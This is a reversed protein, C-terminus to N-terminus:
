KINDYLPFFPLITFSSSSGSTQWTSTSGKWYTPAYTSNSICSTIINKTYYTATKGLSTLVKSIITKQKSEVLYSLQGVTGIYGRLISNKYQLTKSKASIFGTLTKNGYVYYYALIDTARLGDYGRGSTGVPVLQTSLAGTILSPTQTGIIDVYNATTVFTGTTTPSVLDSIKVLYNDGRTILFDPAVHLAVANDGTIGLTDGIWNNKRDYLSNLDIENWITNNNSDVTTYVLYIYSSSYRSTYRYLESPSSYNPYAIFTINSPISYYRPINTSQNSFYPVPYYTSYRVGSILNNFSVSGNSITGRRIFHIKSYLSYRLYVYLNNLDSINGGGIQSFNITISSKEPNIYNNYIINVTRVSYTSTYTLSRLSKQSMYGKRDPVIINYTLGLEILFECTGDENCYKTESQGNSKVITISLDILQLLNDVSRVNIQLFEYQSINLNRLESFIGVKEVENNIWSGPTHNSIFKYIENNYIVYENVFYYRTNDFEEIGTKISDECSNINNQFSSLDFKKTDLTNNTEKTGPVYFNELSDTNNLQSIKINSM